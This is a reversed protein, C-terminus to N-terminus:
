EANQEHKARKNIQRTIAGRLQVLRAVEPGYRHYTNRRMLEARSICELKDATIDDPEATKCGVRFIVVHGDPIAGVDREWVLSHMSKWDRPVCGTDTIKQQLYGDKTLRTSGIPVWTHPKSGPKFQTRRCGEQFGVSGPKGKNWPKLGPKFQTAKMAECQSGRQIRGALDSELYEASKRLGLRAAAQYVQGVSRGLADAIDDTKTHPYRARLMSLEAATWKTGRM